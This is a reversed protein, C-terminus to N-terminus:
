FKHSFSNNIYVRVFEIGKDLYMAGVYAEFATHLNDINDRGSKETEEGKGMLIAKDLDIIKAHTALSEKCVISARQTTLEGKSKKPYRTFLLDGVVYGLVADGLFALRENHPLYICGKADRNENPYSSHTLAELLIDEKFFYIGSKKQFSVLDLSM